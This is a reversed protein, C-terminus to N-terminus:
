QSQLAGWVRHFGPLTRGDLDAALWPELDPAPQDEHHRLCAPCIRNTGGGVSEYYAHVFIHRVTEFYDRCGKIFQLHASPIL